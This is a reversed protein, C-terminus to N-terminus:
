KGAYPHRDYDSRELRIGVERISPMVERHMIHWIRLRGHQGEELRINRLPVSNQMLAVGHGLATGDEDATRLYLTDCWYTSPAETKGEVVIWIGEYPFDNNYRLGVSLLCEQQKTAAPLDYCLTDTREWGQLSVKEYRHVVTGKTCGVMALCMIGWIANKM